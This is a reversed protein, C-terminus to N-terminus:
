SEFNNNKKVHPPGWFVNTSKSKPYQVLNKWIKNWSLLHKNLKDKTEMLSSMAERECM